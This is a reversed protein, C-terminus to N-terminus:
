QRHTQANTLLQTSGATTTTTTKYLTWELPRCYQACHCIYVATQRADTARCVTEPAAIHGGSSHPTTSSDLHKNNNNNTINLKIDASVMLAAAGWPEFSTKHTFRSWLGVVLVVVVVMQVILVYM